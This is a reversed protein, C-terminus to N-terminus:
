GPGLNVSVPQACYVYVLVVCYQSLSIICKLLCVCVCVSMCLYNVDRDTMPCSLFGLQEGSQQLSGYM